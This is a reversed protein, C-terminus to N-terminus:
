LDANKVYKCYKALLLTNHSKSLVLKTKRGPEAGSGAPPLKRREGMGRLRGPVLLYGRGNGVKEVGVAGRERCRRRRM